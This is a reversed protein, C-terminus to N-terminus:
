IEYIPEVSTEFNLIENGKRLDLRNGASRAGLLARTLPLKGVEVNERASPDFLQIKGLLEEITKINWEERYGLMAKGASNIYTLEHLPNVVIIGDPIAELYQKLLREKQSLQKKLFRQKKRDQIFFYLTLITIIFGTFGTFLIFYIAKQHTVAAQNRSEELEINAYVGINRTISSLNEFLKIGTGGRILDSAAERGKLRFTDVVSQSFGVFQSTVELMQKVHAKQISDNEVLDFLTDSIAVLKEKSSKIGSLMDENGTVVYGRVNSQIDKTTLEFQSTQNVLNITNTVWLNQSTMDVLNEYSFFLSVLILFLGLTISFYSVLRKM